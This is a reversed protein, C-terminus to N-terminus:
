RSPAHATPPAIETVSYGSQQRSTLWTQLGPTPVVSLLSWDLPLLVALYKVALQVAWGWCRAAVVAVRVGQNKKHHWWARSSRCQLPM